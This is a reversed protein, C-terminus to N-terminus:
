PGGPRSTTKAAWDLTVGAIWWSVNRGEGALRLGAPGAPPAGDVASLAAPSRTAVVLTVEGRQEGLRVDFPQLFRLERTNKDLEYRCSLRTDAAQMTTQGDPKHGQFLAQTETVVVDHTRPDPTILGQAQVLRGQAFEPYGPLLTPSTLLSAFRLADRKEPPTTDLYADAPQGQILKKAWDSAFIQSSGRLMALAQGRPTLKRPERIGTEELLVRWRRRGTEKDDSGLLTVAVDLDVDPTSIRYNQEVRYSDGTRDWNRIGQATVKAEAGAQRVNAVLDHVFFNPLQGKQMAGSRDRGWFFRDRLKVQVKRWEDPKSKLLNRVEPQDLDFRQDRLSPDLSGWFAAHADVDDGRLLDFWANTFDEAQQRLALETAGRYALYGFGCTVSLLMGWKALPLGARTGESRRIQLHAALSLGFGALPLVLSIPDMLFPVDARFAVLGALVVWVAFLSSVILGAIALGSVPRYPVPDGAVPPAPVPAPDSM